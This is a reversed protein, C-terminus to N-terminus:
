VACTRDPASRILFRAIMLHLESPDVTPSFHKLVSLNLALASFIISYISRYIVGRLMNEWEQNCTSSNSQWWISGLQRLGPDKPLM